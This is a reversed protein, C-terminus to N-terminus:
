VESVCAILYSDIPECLRFLSTQCGYYIGTVAQFTKGVVVEM